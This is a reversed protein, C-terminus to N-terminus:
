PKPPTEVDEANVIQWSGSRCVWVDTWVFRGSKGDATTWADAGVAIATDGFFRVQVFESKTTGSGEEAEKIAFAKDYVEGTPSVGVFDEALIRKVVSSDGRAYSQAWAAESDRIFKEDQTCAGAALAPAALCMLALACAAVSVKM